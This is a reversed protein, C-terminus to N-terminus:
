RPTSQHFSFNRRKTSRLACFSGRPPATANSPGLCSLASTQAEVWLPSMMSATWCELYKLVAPAVPQIQSHVQLVMWHYASNVPQRSERDPGLLHLLHHQLYATSSLPSLGIDCSGYELMDTNNSTAAQSALLATYINSM